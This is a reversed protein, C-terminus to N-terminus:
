KKICYDIISCIFDRRDEYTVGWKWTKEQTEYMPHKDSVIFICQAKMNLVKAVNVFASGEADVAVCGKSRWYNEKYFTQRYIADTTVTPDLSVNFGKNKLVDVLNLDRNEITAFENYGVYHISTGEESLIKEPIVIDRININEGFGGVMGILIVNEVGVANISEITDAIQPAGVGGHLFCWDDNGNICYVPSNGFFRVLKETHLYADYNELIVKDWRNLCFVIANKPLPKAEFQRHGSTIHKKATIVGPTKDDKNYWNMIDGM